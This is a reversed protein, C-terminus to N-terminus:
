QPSADCRSPSANKAMIGAPAACLPAGAAYGRGTLAPRGPRASARAGGHPRPVEGGHAAALCAEASLALDIPLTGLPVPACRRPSPEPAAVKAVGTELADLAALTAAEMARAKKKDSYRSM